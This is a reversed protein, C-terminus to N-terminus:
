RKYSKMSAHQEKDIKKKREAAIYSLFSNDVLSVIDICDELLQGQIDYRLIQARIESRPIPGNEFHRETHLKWFSSLFFTEPFDLIAPDRAWDPIERGKAEATELM